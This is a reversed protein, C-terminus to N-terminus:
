HITFDVILRVLVDAPRGARTGPRFLWQKAARIAEIDLGYRADLSRVVRVPGVTGNELVVVELEVSGQIRARMAEATFRPDVSKILIPALVDGGPRLPGGGGNGGTGEDIGPGAGPGAGPGRGNGGPAGPLSVTVGPFQLVRANDTEVPASLVPVPPPEVVPMATLPPPQQHRPVEIPRPSAPASNGGGGGAIGPLPTYTVHLTVPPPQSAVRGSSVSMVITAILALGVHLVASVGM